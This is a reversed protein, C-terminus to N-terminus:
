EKEKEAEEEITLTKDDGGGNESIKDHQKDSYLFSFFFILFIGWCAWTVM